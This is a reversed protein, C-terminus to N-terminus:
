STAAPARWGASRPEWGCAPTEAGGGSPRRLPTQWAGAAGELLARVGIGMLAAPVIGFASLASYRGGINPDGAFTRLFRARPPLAELGSGPDTIAIFDTATTSRALLLTRVAVAARDHRRVELLRHVAHAAPGAGRPGGRGRDRPDARRRDLRARATAPRRPSRISEVFSRRLVEPALSSGGMGLLVIDEVETDRTEAAFLELPGLEALSREAITLWGLRNAVEPTGAPAWLTADAARLRAAVDSRRPRQWGARRGRSEAVRPHPGRRDPHPRERWSRLSRPAPIPKRRARSSAVKM